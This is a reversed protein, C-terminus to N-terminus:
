VGVWLNFSNETYLWVWGITCKGEKASYIKEKEKKREIVALRSVTHNCTRSFFSNYLVACSDQFIHYVCYGVM